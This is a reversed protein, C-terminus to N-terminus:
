EDDQMAEGTEEIDKGVGEWTNCGPLSLAGALLALMMLTFMVARKNMPSNREILPAITAARFGIEATRAPADVPSVCGHM